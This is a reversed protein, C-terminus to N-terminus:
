VKVGAANFEVCALYMPKWFNRRRNRYTDKLIRFRKVWRNVHEICIRKRSIERNSAKQSKDLSGGRPKKRPIVSNAHCDAIGQYGSDAYLVVGRPIRAASSEKYVSFDHVHGKDLCIGVIRGTSKCYLIQTKMTHRKKKGSYFERQGHRPRNIPSETADVVAIDGDKLKKTGELRLVGSTALFTMTENYVKCVTGKSIGWCDAVTEMTGYQRMYFLTIALYDYPTLRFPRGRKRAKEEDM